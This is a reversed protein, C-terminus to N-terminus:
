PSQTFTACIRRLMVYHMVEPVVELHPTVNQILGVGVYKNSGLSFLSLVGPCGCIVLDCLYAETMSTLERQWNCAGMEGEV